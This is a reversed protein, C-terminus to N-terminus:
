TIGDASQINTVRFTYKPNPVAKDFLFDTCGDNFMTLVQLEEAVPGLAPTNGSSIVGTFLDINESLKMRRLERVNADTGAAEDAFITEIKRKGLLGGEANIEEAAMIHGKRGPEGLLNAPGTLFTIHGTKYPKDPVTGKVKPAAQAPRPGAFYTGSMASAAVAAGATVGLSNLFTRRDMPNKM